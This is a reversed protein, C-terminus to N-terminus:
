RMLNLTEDTRANLEKALFNRSENIEREMAQTKRNMAENQVVERELRAKAQDYEM